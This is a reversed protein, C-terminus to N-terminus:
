EVILGTSALVEKTDRMKYRVEYQGASGPAFLSLPSGQVTRAETIPRADADSGAPVIEIFDNRNGPGTWKVQVIGGTVVTQTAALTASAPALTLPVSVLTRDSGYLVYRIEFSGLARPLDFIAPSGNRTRAFNMDTGEPAGVEAITIYDNGNDPGSWVVEIKGGPVPTNTIELTGTTATLEITKSVLTRNSSYVVYRIEYTGIGDPLTVEVVDGERTRAFDNYAGEEAGLEVITVFDNSHDPGTWAIKVVSGAPASEPADLTGSIETVEILRSVLTRDSNGLVYRIEYTGVTDLATIEATTGNKTYAYDAYAGEKAGVEVITIFDGTNNPGTWVVEFEAGAAVSDPAELAGSIATVEITRSVLTRDSQGLVYRIEYTGVADPANLDSTAGNKTYAYDAYAGEKAGVEVITIFDRQNDPGTWDVDFSAGAAVSEPADLTGSIETVEIARTALTKDSPGHVYRLEYTGLGDPASVEAPSGHQTYGYGLYSGEDAGLEVITVYDSQHNPGTWIVEFESGAAVQEPAELTALLLAIEVPVQLTMNGDDGELSFEMGGSIDPGSVLVMYDGGGIESSFTDTGDAQAVTEGGSTQVIWNLPQVVQNGDQDVAVFSIQPISVVVVENLAEVLANGDGALFFKGGTNEALCSIQRGEEESLGFGVVHATFDVGQQELANGLACPDASCTEIGDTILIVTAKDETYRLEEAAIQVAASLPTKGMFRMNDVASSIQAATGTAAPVILEIDSCNGKERHGYAILGLETSDPVGPLVDRLTDRAIALKPVGDIQGWMSGSGDMVIMVREQALVGATMGFSAVGLGIVLASTRVRAKSFSSDLIGM